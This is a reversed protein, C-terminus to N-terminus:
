LTGAFTRLAEAAGSTLPDGHGFLITGADLAALVKVSEAAKAPDSTFQPNSGTLGATNGLADGAVLVRTGRDFVSIHGDTHGPTAVVQMGLIDSGDAAAVISRPSTTINDIDAAGAHIVARSARAAVDALSGAHDPHHHTLVVDTVSDWSGSATQLATGIADASGAVGTDVVAVSSGRVLLYASVFGFNVRKWALADTPAATATTTTTAPTGAATAGSSRATGAPATNAPGSSGTSGTSCGTLVAVAVGSWGMDLLIQRRSLRHLRMPRSSRYVVDM